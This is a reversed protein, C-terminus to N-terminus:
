FKIRSHAYRAKKLAEDLSKDTVTIHGMKRGKRVMEKGYIHVKVEGYEYAEALGNVEAKKDQEGILNKMVTPRLLETSGLPLGLIARIHNEFQSTVCGEITYHGSNHPRPALENVLVDGEETVFLEICLMGYADFAQVARRAIEVAKEQCSRSIRAPVITEDLISDKHSNEAVPFVKVDGSLNRCVLVSVEKIFPVHAEAMLPLQGAGLQKWAEQCEDPRHVVANGKGDYGGTCTKLVFPYGFRQGAETMDQPHQIPMFEPVPFSHTRLWLKQRYKDQIYLLTQSAPYVKYGEKELKQLARVNIHEFEYTVVDVKEALRHFANVDNFSAVIHEDAISHAPCNPTPDLIVFYCDLRKGDLIMMKGLQGGGIIGIRYM